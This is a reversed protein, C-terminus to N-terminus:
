ITHYIFKIGSLKGISIFCHFSFYYKTGMVYYKAGAVSIIAVHHLTDCPLLIKKALCNCGIHIYLESTRSGWPIHGLLHGHRFLRERGRDLCERKATELGEELLVEGVCMYEEVRDRWKGLPREKSNPSVTKSVYVKKVFEECKARLRDM